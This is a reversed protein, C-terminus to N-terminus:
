EDQDSLGSITLSDGQQPTQGLVFVYWDEDTPSDLTLGTFTLDGDIRGLDFAEGPEDNREPKETQDTLIPRGSRIQVVDDGAGADVWVSKIVTPGVTIQDNGGLADVIIALFDGEPPLLRGL